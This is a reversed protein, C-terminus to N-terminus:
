YQIKPTSYVAVNLHPITSSILPSSPYKMNKIQKVVTKEKKFPYYILGNLECSTEALLITVFYNLHPKSENPSTSKSVGYLLQTWYNSVLCEPSGADLSSAHNTQSAPAIPDVTLHVV